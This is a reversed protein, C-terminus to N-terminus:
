GHAVVGGVYGGVPADTDIFNSAAAGLGAHHAITILVHVVKHPHSLDTLRAARYSRRLAYQLFDYSTVLRDSESCVEYETQM